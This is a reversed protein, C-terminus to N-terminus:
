PFQRATMGLTKLQGYFQVDATISIQFINYIILYGALCVLAMGFYVPLTMEQAAAGMEPAYALNIGYELGELGTDDLILQLPPCAV